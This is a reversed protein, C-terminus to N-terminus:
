LSNVLDKLAMKYDNDPMKELIARMKEKYNDKLDNTKEIGAIDVSTKVGNIKDNKISDESMDNNIQFLLGFLKGFEGAKEVDLNTMIACSMLITEFLSATKGYIIQLYEQIKIDNNRKIYQEIEAESMLRTANIFLNLIDKHEVGILYNVAYSLLFDGSLVSIESNFKNSITVSGRRYEANDIVDDHLLSANHIIEGASLINIVSESINKENAKLYLLAILSRIRKSNGMLFVNLDNLVDNTINFLGGLHKEIKNIDDEVLFRFNEM